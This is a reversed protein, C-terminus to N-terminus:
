RIWHLLYPILREEKIIDYDRDSVVPKDHKFYAKDFKKLKNIKKHYAKEIEKKEM